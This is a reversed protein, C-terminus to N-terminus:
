LLSRSNWLTEMGWAAWWSFSINGVREQLPTEFSSAEGFPQHWFPFPSWVSLLSSDPNASFLCCFLGGPCASYLLCLALPVPCWVVPSTSTSSWRRPRADLWIYLMRFTQWSPPYFYLMLCSSTLIQCAAGQILICNLLLTFLSVSFWNALFFTLSNPAQLFFLFLPIPDPQRFLILCRKQIGQLIAWGGDMQWGLIFGSGCTRVWGCAASQHGVGSPM